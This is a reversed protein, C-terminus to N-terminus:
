FQEDKLLRYITTKGIGLKTAVQRVKNNYRDLYQRIIIRNYDDLTMEDKLLETITNGSTFSIDDPSIIQSESM